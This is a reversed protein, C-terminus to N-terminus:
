VDMLLLMHHKKWRGAIYFAGDDGGSINKIICNKITPSGGDLMSIGEQGNRITFEQLFQKVQIITIIFRFLMGMVVVMSLQLKEIRM